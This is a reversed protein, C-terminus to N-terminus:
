PTPPAPWRSTPWAHHRRGLGAAGQDQVEPHDFKGLEKLIAEISGRVDARIILNLTAVEEDQGLRGEALRQQFEEFSVKRPAARSRNSAAQANRAADALERAQAIDDLVYFKDGAQPAM